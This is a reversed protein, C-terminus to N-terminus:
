YTYMDHNQKTRPIPPALTEDFECKVLPALSTALKSTGDLPTKIPTGFRTATPDEYRAGAFLNVKTLMVLNPQISKLHTSSLKYRVAEANLAQIRSGALLLNSNSCDMRMWCTEWSEELWWLKLMPQSRPEWGQKFQQKLSFRMSDKSTSMTLADLVLIRLQTDLEMCLTWLWIELPVRLPLLNTPQIM